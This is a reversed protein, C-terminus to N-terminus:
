IAFSKDRWRVESCGSVTNNGVPFEPFDLYFAGAVYTRVGNRERIITEKDCDIYVRDGALTDIAIQYEVDNVTIKPNNMEGELIIVPYCETDGSNVCIGDGYLVNEAPSYGFIDYAKLSVDFNCRKPYRSFSSSIRKVGFILGRYRLYRLKRVSRNIHVSCKKIFAEREAVSDFENGMFTVLDLLRPSYKIDVPIEGDLGAITESTERVAPVDDIKSSKSDIIFGFPQLYMTGNDTDQIEWDIVTIEKSELMPSDGEANVGYVRFRIRSCDTASIDCIFSTETGSYVVSFEGGDGSAELRYSTCDSSGNWSITCAKENYMVTDPVTIGTIKSPKPM